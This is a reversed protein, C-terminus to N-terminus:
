HQVCGRTGALGGTFGVQSLPLGRATATVPSAPQSPQLLSHYHRTLSVTATGHRIVSQSLNLFVLQSPHPLSHTNRTLIQSHHVLFATTTVLLLM